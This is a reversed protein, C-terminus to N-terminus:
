LYALKKKFFFLANLFLPWINSPYCDPSPHRGFKAGNFFPRHMFHLAPRIQTEAISSRWFGLLWYAKASKKFHLVVEFALM